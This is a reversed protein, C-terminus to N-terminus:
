VQGSLRTSLFSDLRQLDPDEVWRFRVGVDYQTAGLRAVERIWIVQGTARFPLRESPLDLAFPVEQGVQFKVETPFRMGSVSIDYTFSREPKSTYPDIFEVLVPAQLRRHERRELM